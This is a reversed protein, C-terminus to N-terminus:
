YYVSTMLSSKRSISFLTPANRITARTREDNTRNEYYFIQLKQYMAIIAPLISFDAAM